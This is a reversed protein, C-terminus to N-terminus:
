QNEFYRLAMDETEHRRVRGMLHNVAERPEKGEFLLAHLERTIPMDIEYKKALENVAKTTKIGEVVMGMQDVIEDPTMGQALMNGARWNRSHRSTATVVLDGVGALGSFTLPNAGLKVGIRTIEALGRTLLAAKANDGFQLGDSVGAGLAIINKLAGGVEVGIVDPSTYVRFRNTMLADQVVEAVKRDPAAVVVTTPAKTGVEEAHSPGSLVAIRSRFSVPLEEAIVESMRKLTDLEMGKTAHVVIADPHLHPALARVTERMAHSPVVLLVFTCGVVAEALSSYATIADALQIGPLYRENTRTKNIADALEARRAWLSVDSYNETLVTSLATGFSGAGIVAARNKM